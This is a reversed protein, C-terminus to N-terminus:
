NGVLYNAIRLLKEPEAGSREVYYVVLELFHDNFRLSDTDLSGKIFSAVTSSFYLITM